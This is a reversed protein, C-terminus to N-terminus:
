LPSLIYVWAKRKREIAIQLNNIIHLTENNMAAIFKAKDEDTAISFADRSLYLDIGDLYMMYESM